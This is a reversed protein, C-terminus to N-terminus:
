DGQHFLARCAASACLPMVLSSLLELSVMISEHFGQQFQQLDGSSLCLSVLGAIALRPLKGESHGEDIVSDRLMVTKRVSQCAHVAFAFPPFGSHPDTGKPDQNPASEM